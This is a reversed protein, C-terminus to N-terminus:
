TSRGVCVYVEYMPTLFLCIHSPISALLVCHTCRVQPEEVLSGITNRSYQGPPIPWGIDNLKATRQEQRAVVWREQKHPTRKNSIGFHNRSVYSLVSSEDFRLVYSTLQSNHTHTHTTIM